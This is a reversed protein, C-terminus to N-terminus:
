LLYLILFKELIIKVLCNGNEFGVLEYDVKYKLCIVESKFEGYESLVLKVEEDEVYLCLGMISVNVFKGYLLLCDIYFENVDFGNDVFLEM